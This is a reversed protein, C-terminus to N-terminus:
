RDLMIGIFACLVILVVVGWTPALVWWWSWDIIKCLKLVIFAVQLLGTMGVGGSTNSEEKTYIGGLFIM